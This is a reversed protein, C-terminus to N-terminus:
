EDYDSFDDDYDREEEEDIGDYNDFWEQAAEDNEEEWDYYEDEPRYIESDGFVFM